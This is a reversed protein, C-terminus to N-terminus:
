AKLRRRQAARARVQRAGTGSLQAIAELCLQEGGTDHRYACCKSRVWLELAHEEDFHIRSGLHELIDEAQRVEGRVLAYDAMLIGILRMAGARKILPTDMLVGFAATTEASGAKELSAAFLLHVPANVERWRIALETSFGGLRRRIEVYADCLARFAECCATHDSGCMGQVLAADM